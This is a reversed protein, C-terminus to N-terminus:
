SPDVGEDLTHKAELYAFRVKGDMQPGGLVQVDNGPHGELIEVITELSARYRGWRIVKADLPPNEVSNPSPTLSAEREWVSDKTKILIEGLSNRVKTGIPAAACADLSGIPWEREVSSM